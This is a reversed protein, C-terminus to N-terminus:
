AERQHLKGIKPYFDFLDILFIIFYGLYSDICFLIDIM